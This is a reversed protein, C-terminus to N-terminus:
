CGPTWFSGLSKPMAGGPVLVAEAWTVLLRGRQAAGAAVGTISPERSVATPTTWVGARWRSHVVVGAANLVGGQEAPAGRYLVHLHGSDDVVLQQGDMASSLLLPATPAWARGGNVSVVTKMMGDHSGGDSRTFWLVVLSDGGLRASSFTEFSGPLTDVLQPEQWAVGESAPTGRIWYLYRSAEKTAAVLLSVSGDHQAFATAGHIM